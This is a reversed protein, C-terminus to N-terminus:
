CNSTPFTLMATHWGKGPSHPATARTPAARLSDLYVLTRVARVFGSELTIKNTMPSRVCSLPGEGAGVTVKATRLFTIKHLMDSDVSTLLRKSTGQTGVTRGALLDKLAVHSHMGISVKILHSCHSELKGEVSTQACYTGQFKNYIQQANYYFSKNCIKNITVTYAHM